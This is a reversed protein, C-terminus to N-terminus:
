KMSLAWRVGVEGTVLNTVPNERVAVQLEGFPDGSEGSDSWVEGRGRLGWVMVVSSEAVSGAAVLRITQQVANGSVGGNRGDGSEGLRGRVVASRLLM